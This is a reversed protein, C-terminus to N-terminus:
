AATPIAGDAYRAEHVRHHEQDVHFRWYNDFDGNTRTARLKLIAEAGRPPELPSRHHGHPRRRPLPLNRRDGRHRDALGSKAEIWRNLPTSAARTDM